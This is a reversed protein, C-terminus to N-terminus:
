FEKRDSSGLPAASVASSKSSEGDRLLQASPKERFLDVLNSDFSSAASVLQDANTAYDSAPHFAM